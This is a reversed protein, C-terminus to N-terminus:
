ESRFWRTQYGNLTEPGDENTILFDIRWSGSSDKSRTEYYRERKRQPEGGSKPSLIYEHWGWEYMTDGRRGIDAIILTMRVHYESFLDSLKHSLTSRSESGYKGPCGHSWDVFTNQFVQLVREVDGANFSDRLETKAMNIALRDDM